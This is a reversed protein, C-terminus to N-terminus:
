DEKSMLNSLEQQLLRSLIHFDNKEMKESTMQLLARKHLSELLAIKIDKSAEESKIDIYEIFYLDIKEKRRRQLKSRIAQIIGYLLAGL